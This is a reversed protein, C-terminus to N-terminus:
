LDLVLRPSSARACCPLCVNNAARERDTLYVDRHLPTGERVGTMCTGCVGQECATPIHVGAAALATTMAQGAPVTILQGSSAIQVEFPSEDAGVAPAVGFHEVHQQAAQWGQAKAINLVADIFGRPGCVYLHLDDQPAALLRQLDLRQAADGDDHHLLVQAAFPAEGLLTRFATRAATRTAYHLEFARGERWLQQAMSLLPTIGIGGALLLCRGAPQLAFLNRPASIELTQGELVLDHVAVSGGRSSPDRLVAIRYLGPQAPDNCLSYQRVLGGPLQVDIHAGASFPPLAADNLPVLDLSCIDQAEETKREVRVRIMSTM